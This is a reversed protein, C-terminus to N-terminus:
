PSYADEQIFFTVGLKELADAIETATGVRAEDDVWHEGVRVDTYEPQRFGYDESLGYDRLVELIAQEVEDSPTEGFEGLSRAAKPYDYITLTLPTYDGM